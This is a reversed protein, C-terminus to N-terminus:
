QTLHTPIPRAEHIKEKGGEHVESLYVAHKGGETLSSKECIEPLDRVPSVRRSGMMIRAIAAEPDEAFDPDLRQAIERWTLKGEAHLARAQRWTEAQPREQKLRARSLQGLKRDSPRVCERAAIRMRLAAAEPDKSFNPDYKEALAKWSWGNSDHLEQAHRLTEVRLARKERMREKKESVSDCAAKAPTEIGVQPPATLRLETRVAARALETHDRVSARALETLRDPTFQAASDPEAKELPRLVSRVRAATRRSCYTCMGLSVHPRDKQQCILCGFKDFYYHWKRQEPVTQLRKMETSVARGQFFPELIEDPRAGTTEAIEVAKGNSPVRVLLGQVEETELTLLSRELLCLIESQVTRRNLRARARLKRGMEPDIRLQSPLGPIRPLELRDTRKANWM